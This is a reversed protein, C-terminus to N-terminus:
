SNKAFYKQHYEEADTWDTTSMSIIATKAKPYKTKSHTAAEKQQITAAVVLSRYQVGGSCSYNHRSWFSQLLEEYSLVAPNFAIRICETHDGM